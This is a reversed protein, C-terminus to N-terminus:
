ISICCTPWGKALLGTDIPDYEVDAISMIVKSFIIGSVGQIGLKSYEDTMKCM